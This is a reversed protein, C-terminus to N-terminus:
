KGVAMLSKDSSLFLNLSAKFLHRKCLEKQLRSSYKLVYNVIITVMKMNNSISVKIM